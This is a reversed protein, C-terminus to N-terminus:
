PVVASAENSNASNKTTGNVTGVTQIVFYYPGASLNPTRAGIAAPDNIPLQNPYSGSSSGYLLLYGTVTVDQPQPAPVWSLMVYHRQTLFGIATGVMQALDPQTAAGFGVPSGLKPLDKKIFHDMEKVAAPANRAGVPALGTAGRDVAYHMELVLKEESTPGEAKVARELAKVDDATMKAVGGKADYQRLISVFPTTVKFEPFASEMASAAEPAFRDISAQNGKLWGRLQAYRTGIVRMELPTPQQARLAAALSEVDAQVLQGKAAAADFNKLTAMFQPTMRQEPSVKAHKESAENWQVTKTGDKARAARGEAVLAGTKADLVQFQEAYTQPAQSSDHHVADAVIFQQAGDQTSFLYAGSQHSNAAGRVRHLAEDVAARVPPALHSLDASPPGFSSSGDNLWKAVAEKAAMEAKPSDMRLVQAPPNWPTSWSFSLTIGGKTAPAAPTGPGGVATAKVDGYQRKHLEALVQQIALKQAETAAGDNGEFPFFVTSSENGRNSDQAKASELAGLMSSAIDAAASQISSDSASQPSAPNAPPAGPTKPDVTPM